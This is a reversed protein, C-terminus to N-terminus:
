LRRGKRNTQSALRNYLALVEEGVRGWSYKEEVLKRGRRGMGDAREDDSLVDAIAAALADADGAPVVRGADTRRIDEAVGAIDTTVVPTGCALAELAVMGFGEQAASVSPMALVRSRAYLGPLEDDPVFGRFDVALGFSEAKERYYDLSEGGGGIVVEVDDLRRKVRPLAELLVDLGKYAHFRNLVGLFFISKGAKESVQPRFRQTDVGCPIIATKDRFRGLHPSVERYRPQTSIIGDCAALTGPLLLRNYMACIRGNLGGAVIDNHYTIVCPIGRHRAVRSAIDATFPTPLHTHIIDADIRSLGAYLGTIVPTGGIRFLYGLRKVKIGDIVEEAPRDAAGLASTLVAVDHGLRVMERALSRLYNDVGGVVPYFASHVHVIKM